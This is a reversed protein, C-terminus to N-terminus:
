VADTGSSQALWMSIGAGFCEFNILASLQSKSGTLAKDDYSQKEFFNAITIEGALVKM